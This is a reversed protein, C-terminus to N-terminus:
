KISIIMMITKIHTQMELFKIKKIKIIKTLIIVFKAIKFQAVTLQFLLQFSAPKQLFNL